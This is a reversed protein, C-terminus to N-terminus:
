KETSSTVRALLTPDAMRLVLFHEGDLLDVERPRIAKVVYRGIQQGEQVRQQGFLAFRSNGFIVTGSLSLDIPLPKESIKQTEKQSEAPSHIAAAQYEFSTQNNLAAQWFEIKALRQCLGSPNRPHRPLYLDGCPERDHCRLEHNTRCGM